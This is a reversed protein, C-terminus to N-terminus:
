CLRALSYILNVHKPEGFNKLNHPREVSDLKQVKQNSRYKIELPTTIYGWVQQPQNFYLERRM